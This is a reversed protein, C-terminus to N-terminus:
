EEESWRLKFIIADEQTRFRLQVDCTQKIYNEGLEDIDDTIVIKDFTLVLHPIQNDYLWKRCPHWFEPPDDAEKNYIVEWTLNNADALFQTNM